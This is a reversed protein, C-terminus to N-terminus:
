RVSDREARGHGDPGLRQWARGKRDLGFRVGGRRVAGREAWVNGQWATGHPASGHWVGGRRVSGQGAADLFNGRLLACAPAVSASTSPVAAVLVSKM